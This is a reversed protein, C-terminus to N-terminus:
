AEAPLTPASHVEKRHTSTQGSTHHQQRSVWKPRSVMVLYGWRGRSTAKSRPGASSSGFWTNPSLCQSVHGGCGWSGLGASLIVISRASITPRSGSGQVQGSTGPDPTGPGRNHLRGALMWLRRRPTTGSGRYATSTSAVPVDWKSCKAALPAYLCMPSAKKGQGDTQKLTYKWAGYRRTFDDGFASSAALFAEGGCVSAGIVSKPPTKEFGSLHKSDLPHDQQTVWRPGFLGPADAATRIRPLM